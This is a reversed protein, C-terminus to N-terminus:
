QMEVAREIIIRLSFIANTTGKGKRFRYQEQSVNKDIKNRIRSRIVGLIIKGIQSMINVTWHQECEATGEKKPITTFVPERMMDPIYGTDYITNTLDTIKKKVLHGAAEVMEVSERGCIKRM